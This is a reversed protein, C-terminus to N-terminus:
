FFYPTVEEMAKRTDQVYVVTTNGSIDVDREAVIVAAGREAAMRAFNHGDVHAGHLCVFLSGGRVERSDATIDTVMQDPKGIVRIYEMHQLLDQLIKM